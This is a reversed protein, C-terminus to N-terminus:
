HLNSIASAASEPQKFCVFARPANNGDTTQIIKVGEIEGYPEFVVKLDAQTFTSPFGKV